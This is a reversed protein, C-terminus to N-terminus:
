AKKGAAEFKQVLAAYRQEADEIPARLTPNEMNRAREGEQYAMARCARAATELEVDTLDLPM